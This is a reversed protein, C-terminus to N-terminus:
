GTRLVFVDVVRWITAFTIIVSSLSDFASDLVVLFLPISTKHFSHVVEDSLFNFDSKMTNSWWNRTLFQAKKAKKFVTMTVDILRHM